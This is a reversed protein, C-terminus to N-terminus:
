FTFRKKSKITNNFGGVCHIFSVYTEKMCKTKIINNIEEYISYDLYVGTIMDHPKESFFKTLEKHSMLFAAKGTNRWNM